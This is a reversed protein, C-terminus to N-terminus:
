ESKFTAGSRILALILKDDRGPEFESGACFHLHKGRVILGAAKALVFAPPAAIVTPAPDNADPAAPISKSPRPM